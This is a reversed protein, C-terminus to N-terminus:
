FESLPNNRIIELFSRNRNNISANKFYPEGALLDLDWDLFSRINGHGKEYVMKEKNGDDDEVEILNENEDYKYFQSYRLEWSTNDPNQYYVRKSTINKGSYFYEVKRIELWNNEENRYEISGNLQDGTYSFLIKYRNNWNGSEMYFEKVEILKDKEYIFEDKSDLVPQGDKYDYNESKLIKTGAYSLSTKWEEFWHGDVNDYEIVEVTLGNEINYETKWDNEEWKGSEKEFYILTAVNGSYTIVAKEDEEWIETDTKYTAEWGICKEGEYFINVRYDEEGEDIEIFEIIRHSNKGGFLNTENEVRCTCLLLTTLFLLASKKMTKKNLNFHNM